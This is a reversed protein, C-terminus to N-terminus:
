GQKTESCREKKVTSRHDGSHLCDRIKEKENDSFPLLCGLM